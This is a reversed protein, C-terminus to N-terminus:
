ARRGRSELVQELTTVVRDVEDDRLGPYLPLSLLSSSATEANPFDGPRHGWTAAYFSHLHVPIFHVSAGIGRTRLDAIVRDREEARRLRIPFLHWAHGSRPDEYPPELHEELASLARRYRGALRRREAALTDARKLQEIGLAALIDPLNYKYGTRAV